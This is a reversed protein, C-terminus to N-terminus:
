FEYKTWAFGSVACGANGAASANIDPYDAASSGDNLLGGKVQEPTCFLFETAPATALSNTMSVASTKNAGGKGDSLNVLNKVKGTGKVLANKITAKAGRRIRLVNQMEFDDDTTENYALRLDFTVNEITFDSQGTHTPFNGDFNGDAEVGSADSEVTSFGAEWIGYANKLTGSYGMTFDFMDDDSNVVLLGTVDVSGGFFEIGDDAGDVVFINEIGTGNGVGNLTLGNHEVDASNKAGTGRLILYEISGSNDAADNGGYEHDNDIETKATGGGALPAKGNIVLGGWSGAAVNTGKATMEVPEAATGKVNIKGGQLVLIYSDYGNSGEIRTGAPITLEGDRAIYLPDSLDYTTGADLRMKTSITGKLDGGAYLEGDPHPPEVTTAFEAKISVNAAPMSFTAPTATANAITAGGSEVTWKSFSYGEAPTATLTVTTGETAKSVSAQATGGTTASVSVTYEPKPDGGGDNGCGVMGIAAVVTAAMMFAKFFRM